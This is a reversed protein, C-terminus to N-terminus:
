FIVVTRQMPDRVMMAGAGLYRTAVDIQTALIDVGHLALSALFVQVNLCMLVMPLEPAVAAVQAAIQAALASANRVDRATPANAIQSGRLKLM